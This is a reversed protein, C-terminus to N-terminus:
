SEAFDDINWNGYGDKKLVRGVRGCLIDNGIFDGNDRKSKKLSGAM